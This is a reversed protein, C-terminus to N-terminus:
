DKIGATGFKFDHIGNIAYGKLVDINKFFNDRNYDDLTKIIEKRINDLKNKINIDGNKGLVKSKIARKLSEYNKDFEDYTKIAEINDFIELDKKHLTEFEERENENKIHITKNPSDRCFPAGVSLDGGTGIIYVTVYAFKINYNKM